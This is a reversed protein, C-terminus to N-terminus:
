PVPEVTVFGAQDAGLFFGAGDNQKQFLAGRFATPKATAPNIFSGSFLGTKAIVALKFGNPTCLSVKNNASLTVSNSVSSALDGAGSTVLLNCNANSVTLAPIGAPLAVYQSGLLTIQTAFGNPYFKSIAARPKVWNLSGNLDSVGVINTFTVWGSLSGQKAAYLPIYVPWMGDKSVVTSQSVRTGDALTGSFRIRGSGDVTVSGYGSGQPFNPGTDGPNPPVLITYYGEYQTAPNSKSNFVPRNATLDSTFTGDSVTGTIQDTGNTLDIHLTVTLPGAGVRPVVATGDGDNDFTGKFSDSAEGMTLKASFSGTAGATISVFGSTQQSPSNSQVLGQYVGAVAAFNAPGGGATAVGNYVVLAFDQDLPDADGPVADSNINAATITVDFSGTTGAPLFVSEVNNLHDASGGTVSHNGSFVNGRYISGGVSVTLDLDNNLAAGFTSGPADTWALTVRFPQSPDSITGLFTRTQGSAIFKDVPIEDRLTRVVGDFATGLDLEGMGQNNSWLDDNAGVGTMYRASNILYAKTMAPSPPQLSQNIFYQRLLACAGAVAPASHSTGSSETFFEQGVPFFNSAGIMGSGPEGCIGIDIANITLFCPLASGTGDPAPPPFSQPAGGTIHTGPAVLDPKNRGDACPGRGSFSVISNASNADTDFTTCGDQGASNNGGNATSMSRVNEAAGVAIVNKATGPPTVTQSGPGGDGDSFVIVMEQNGSAPFPSGAPQADRVLADYAQSDSDYSGDGASGWSNNSIRAGDRYAESMLTPYDPNTFNAPDFIVSSGVRVFPCVGLGYYYGTADTHPFSIPQADYGCLIHANITGHGDCGEVTSQPNQTGELRSYMIRSANNTDGLTYLAFHGPTTTGDDIGSDSVDVVFGSADFQAQTFGKGALWALYGPGSPANGSLNGAVIQDQREDQKSPETYARISVVDPQTAITSVDQPHLRVLLNVYQLLHYRRRVPELKLRDILALTAPNADPDDVLQIAFEDTQIQRLNGKDDVLRANPQIKYNDAYEGHWQVSSMSDALGQLKALSPADGYVLYTNEPVYSIIRAGTQKLAEHWAPRVPGVFQILHMRKGSFTAASQRVSSAAATSTDITTTNLRVHNYDDRVEAKDATVLEPRLHEIEYLQYSGYDALLQGGGDAISKATASDWVKVKHADATPSALLLLVLLVM